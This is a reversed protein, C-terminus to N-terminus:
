ICVFTILSLVNLLVCFIIINRVRKKINGIKIDCCVNKRVLGNTMYLWSQVHVIEYFQSFFFWQSACIKMNSITSKILHPRPRWCLDLQLWFFISNSSLDKASTLPWLNTCGRMIPTTGFKEQTTWLDSVVLFNWTLM